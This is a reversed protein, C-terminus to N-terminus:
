RSRVVNTRVVKDHLTQRKGDWAAWLPDLLTWVWFVGVAILTAAVSGTALGCVAALSGLVPYLLVRVAARGWSLNGPRERLRVRLGTILQGPTGGWRHLCVTFLVLTLGAQALYIWVYPQMLHLLQHVYWSVFGPDNRDIRRRMEEVLRTLDDRTQVQVLVSLPLSVVAVFMQDLLAAGVRHWWGALRAGDPTTAAGVTTAPYATTPYAAAPSAGAAAAGYPTRHPAPALHGTWQQGDWYRLGGSGSPDPYWDPPAATM